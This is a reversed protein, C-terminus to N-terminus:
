SGAEVLAGTVAIVVSGDTQGLQVADIGARTAKVIIRGAERHCAIEEPSKILRLEEVIKLVDIFVSEAFASILAEYSQVTLFFANKEIGVRRTSIRNRSILDVFVQLPDDHDEFDVFGGIPTIGQILLLNGLDTGRTSFVPPSDAPVALYTHGSIGRTQYGSLYYVSEPASM